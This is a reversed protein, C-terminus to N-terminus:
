REGGESVHAVVNLVEINQEAIVRMVARIDAYPLRKDARLVVQVAPSQRKIVALRDAIVGLAEPRNPGISVLVAGARPDDPDAPRCNIIIRTPLKVVEAKSHEPSPLQM